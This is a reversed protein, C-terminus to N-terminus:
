RALAHTSLPELTKLKPSPVARGGVTESVEDRGTLARQAGDACSVAGTREEARPLRRLGAPDDITDLLSTM